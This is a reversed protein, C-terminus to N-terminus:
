GSVSKGLFIVMLPSFYVSFEDWNKKGIKTFIEDSLWEDNKKMGSFIGPFPSFNVSFEDSFITVLKPSFKM